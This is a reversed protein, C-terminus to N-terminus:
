IHGRFYHGFSVEHWGSELGRERGHWRGLSLSGTVTMPKPTNYHTAQKASNSSTSQYWKASRPFSSQFFSRM